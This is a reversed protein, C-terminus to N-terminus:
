KNLILKHIETNDNETIQLFYIGPNLRSLNITNETGLAKGETEFVMQSAANYVKVSASSLDRESTIRFIGSSPNPFISVDQKKEIETVGTVTSNSFRYEAYSKFDTPLSFYRTEQGGTEYLRVFGMGIGDNGSDYIKLTYCDKTRLGISAVSLDSSEYPGGSMIIKDLSNVLEWRIESPKDGPSVKLTLLGPLEDSTAFTSSFVDSSVTTGNINTLKAKVTNNAKPAKLSFDEFAPLVVEGYDGFKVNGSWQTLQIEGNVELHINASTLDGSGSNIFQVTPAFSNVCSTKPYKVNMMTVANVASPTDTTTSQLVEKTARNQVFSYVRLQSIDYFHEIKWSESHQIKQGKSISTPLVLGEVSPLLKRHVNHFETQGNTGRAAGSTIHKEIVNFYLRLDGSIDEMAEFECNMYVSDKDESLYFSSTMKLPSDEELFAQISNIATVYSSYPVGNVIYTPFGISGSPFYYGARKKIDASDAYYMPDNGPSPYWGHYETVSITGNFKGMVPIFKNEADVCPSCTNSTFIEYLVTKKEGANMFALSACVCCVTFFFRM